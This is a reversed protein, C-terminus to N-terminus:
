HVDGAQRRAGAGMSGAAARVTAFDDLVAVDERQVGALWERRRRDDLRELVAVRREARLAELREAVLREESEMREAVATAVMTALREGSELAAMFGAGDLDHALGISAQYDATLERERVAADALVRAAVGVRQRAMLAEVRRVRLVTGLRFSYSKM